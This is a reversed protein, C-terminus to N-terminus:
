EALLHTHHFALKLVAALIVLLTFMIITRYSSWRWSALRIGHHGGGHGHESHEADAGGEEQHVTPHHQHGGQTSDGTANVALFLCISITFVFTAKIMKSM